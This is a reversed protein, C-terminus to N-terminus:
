TKLYSFHVNKNIKNLLCTCLWPYFLLIINKKNSRKDGGWDVIYSFIKFIPYYKNNLLENTFDCKKKKKKLFFFFIKEWVCCRFNSGKWNSSRKRMISVIIPYTILRTNHSEHSVGKKKQFGVWLSAHTILIFM